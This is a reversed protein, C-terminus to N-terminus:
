PGSVPRQMMQSQQLLREAQSSEIGNPRLKLFARLETTGEDYRQLNMLVAGRLLHTEPFDPPATRAAREVEGLALMPEGSGLLARALEFHGQWANPDLRLGQDAALRAERFRMTQNMATSMTFYALTYNPALRIAKELDAIAPQPHNAALWLMAQLTLAEPFQPVLQLAEAVKGEARGTDGKALARRAEDLKHRAKEPIKLEAVSVASGSVQDGAPLGSPLRIEIGDEGARSLSIRSEVTDTRYECVLRYDGPEVGDIEFQGGEGTVTSAVALGNFVNELKVTAGAILRTGSKV